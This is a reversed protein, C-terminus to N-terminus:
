PTGALPAFTFYAVIGFAVIASAALLGVVLEIQVSSGTRRQYNGTRLAGQHHFLPVIGM